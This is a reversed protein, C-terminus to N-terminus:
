NFNKLWGSKSLATALKWSRPKEVLSFGIRPGERLVVEDTGGGLEEGASEIIEEAEADDHIVAAVESGRGAEAIRLLGSEM